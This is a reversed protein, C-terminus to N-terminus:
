KRMYMVFAIILGVIILGVGIWFAVPSEKELSPVPLGVQPKKKPHDYQEIASYHLRCKDQCENVLTPV